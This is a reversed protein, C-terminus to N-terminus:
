KDCMIGISQRIGKVYHFAYPHQKVNNTHRDKPTYSVYLPNNAVKAEYLTFIDDVHKLHSSLKNNPMVRDHVNIAHALLDRKSKEYGQILGDDLSLTSIGTEAYEDPFEELGNGANRIAMNVYTGDGRLANFGKRPIGDTINKSSVRPDLVRKNVLKISANLTALLSARVIESNEGNYFEEYWEYLESVGVSKTLDKKELFEIWAITTKKQKLKGLFDLSKSDSYKLPVVINFMNIFDNEGFRGGRGLRQLINEPTSATTVINEFSINFSAQPIPSSRVVDYEKTGNEKFSKILLGLYNHKDEETFKAHILLGNENHQNYEFSEQATKATETLILTKKTYTQFLPNSDDKANDNAYQLNILYKSGNFSKIKHIYDIELYDKILVPNPTASVLLTSPCEMMKKAYIMEGFFLDFAKSNVYEHFEDFIIFASMYINVIDINSHSTITKTMYDVNSIIVDGTFPEPTDYEVGNEYTISKSGTLYEIKTNPLYYEHKLELFMSECVALRPCIIVIKKAGAKMAIELAMKTKGCGAPGQLVNIEDDCEAIFKTATTQAATRLSNPFRDDFGKLCIKIDKELVVSSDTMVYLSELTKNKIHTELEEASLASILRDATVVCARVINNISNGKVSDTIDSIGFGEDYNKYRPLNIDRLISITSRNETSNFGSITFPSGYDNGLENIGEIMMTFNTFLLDYEKDPIAHKCFNYLNGFTEIPHKKRQIKPHHWLIAHEITKYLGVNGFTKIIDSDEVLLKCLLLSLENHRPKKAFPAKKKISNKSFKQFPSDIKGIDHLCGAYYCAQQLKIYDEHLNLQKAIHQSLYGTAFLHQPLDQKHTNAYM